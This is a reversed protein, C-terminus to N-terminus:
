LGHPASRVCDSLSSTVHASGASDCEDILFLASRGDGCGIAAVGDDFEVRIPGNLDTVPDFPIIAVAEAELGIFVGAPAGTAVYEHLVVVDSFLLQLELETSRDRDVM